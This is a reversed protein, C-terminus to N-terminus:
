NFSYGNILSLPSVAKFANGHQSFDVVYRPLLPTFPVHRFPSPFWLKAAQISICRYKPCIESFRTPSGM